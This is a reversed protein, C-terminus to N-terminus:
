GAGRCLTDVHPGARQTMYSVAAFAAEITACVKCVEAVSGVVEAHSQLVLQAGILSESVAQLCRSAAIPLPLLLAALKPVAGCKVLAERGSMLTSLKALVHCASEAAQIDGSQLQRSVAPVAGDRIALARQEQSNLVADLALLCRQSDAQTLAESNLIALLKPLSRRGFAVHIDAADDQLLYATDTQSRSVVNIPNHYASHHCRKQLIAIPFM